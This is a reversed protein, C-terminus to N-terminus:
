ACYVVFMALVVSEGHEPDDAADVSHAVPIVVLGSIDYRLFVVSCTPAIDYSTSVVASFGEQRTDAKVASFIPAFAPSYGVTGKTHVM